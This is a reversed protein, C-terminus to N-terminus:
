FIRCQIAARLRNATMTSSRNLVRVFGSGAQVPVVVAEFVGKLALEDASLFVTGQRAIPRAHKCAHSPIFVVREPHQSVAPSRHRFWDERQRRVKARRRETGVLSKKIHAAWSPLFSALPMPPRAGGTPDFLVAGLEPMTVDGDQAIIGAFLACHPDLKGKGGPRGRPAAEARGTRRIALAWRAGTAPSLKLRLAVARGSSGEEMYRQFRARLADPLPASM